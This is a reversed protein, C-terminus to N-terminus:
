QKITKQCEGREIDVILLEKSRIRAKTMADLHDTCLGSSGKIVDFKIQSGLWPNEIYICCGDKAQFDQVMAAQEQAQMQMLQQRKWMIEGLARVGEVTKGYEVNVKWVYYFAGAAIVLTLLFAFVALKEHREHSVSKSRM